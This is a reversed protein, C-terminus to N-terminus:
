HQAVLVEELELCKVAWFPGGCGSLTVGQGGAGAWWWAAELRALWNKAKARQRDPTWTM